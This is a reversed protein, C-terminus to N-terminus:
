NGVVVQKAGHQQLWSQVRPAIDGQLVITAGELIAGCGLAKKMERALAQLAPPGLTLGSLVTVTKGGRGKKERRVVLKGQSALGAPEADDPSAAFGKARLSEGLATTPVGGTPLLRPHKRM